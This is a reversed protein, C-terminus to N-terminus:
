LAELKGSKSDPSCPIIPIPIKGRPIPLPQYKSTNGPIGPIGWYEGTNTPIRRYERTNGTNVPMIGWYEGFINGPIGWYEGTNWPIGHYEGINVPMIGWYEGSNGTRGEQLEETILLIKFGKETDIGSGM